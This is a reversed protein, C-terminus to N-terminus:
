RAHEILTSVPVVEYGQELLGNILIDLYQFLYDDRGGSASDLTGVQMSIISGPQKEQLIREILQSAPRYLQSLGEDTRRPVWDLSDVDRGVYIYNAERASELIDDSVFYYPAHWLLSLERGTSDFYEDENRSLGEQIFEKTIRYRRDAMDLYAFFLSGVEHGADAIEALATPHRRIFEGNVFFTATVDYGALANLIETLGDVSDIANFVFSVERRRIRSGNTFYEFNVPDDAAPFPEYTRSPPPFLRSTGVGRVRRVMVVNRYSGSSLSELFVRFRRGAVNKRGGLSAVAETGAVSAPTWRGDYEYRVGGALAAITGDDALDHDTVQSLTVLTRSGSTVNLVEITSRGGVLLRDSNIWVAHIPDDTESSLIRGWSTANRVVVSDEALLAIRANDPSLRIEHVGADNMQEFALNGRDRLDLRFITSARSGQAISGALITVQGFESWAIQQVRTNRPLFLSPLGLIQSSDSFDDPNLYLLFLNRGGKNLLATEGDPGIVFSDFNPDFPFPLKGIITGIQLLGAYLSRTFFEPGLIEYVLSGSVYYLSSQDSWRVSALTGPGLQRFSEGLLRGREFQDISYYYIQGSRSYVFFRSDPAWRAPLIETSLEVDSAVVTRASGDTRQLVLDGYAASTPELIVLYTGDPSATVPIIRGNSVAAGDAFSAFGPVPAFDGSAVTGRFVGFRNQIQVAGESPLYTLIEPFFTLQTIPANTLVDGGAVATGEISDSVNSLDASFLTRYEGFGPAQSTAAFLLADTDGLDLGSFSVEAQLTGALLLVIGITTIRRL